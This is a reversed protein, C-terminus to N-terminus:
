HLIKFMLERLLENESTNVQEVGKSKLDYERLLSIIEETKPKNYNKATLRYDTLFYPNVELKKALDNDPLNRFAHFLYIKSFFNFLSGIIMVLPAAKPNAKFYQVIRQVREIQRSGLAKQLEFVNYDKSIGINEQIQALTISTGKPLNISLKDLENATKSLDTGLFEVILEAVGSQLEYGKNKLYDQVWGAMKNEYLKASQFFVVNKNDKLAKAFKTRTDLKKYKYAIALITTPTPQLFYKELQQLDKMEQAEKIIVIQREAMMPYRRASDLIQLFTCEKGYLVTLNFAEEGEQLVKKELHQTIQDIYYPEDGHLFYVPAYEKKKFAAQIAKFDL